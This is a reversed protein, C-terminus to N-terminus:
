QVTCLRFCQLISINQERRPRQRVRSPDHRFILRVSTWWIPRNLSEPPRYSGHCASYQRGLVRNELFIRCMAIEAERQSLKTYSDRNYNTLFMVLIMFIRIKLVRFIHFIFRNEFNQFIFINKRPLRKPRSVENAAYNETTSTSPVSSFWDNWSKGASPTPNPIPWIKPKPHGVTTAHRQTRAFLWATNQSELCYGKTLWPTKIM